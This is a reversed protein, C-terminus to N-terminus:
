SLVECVFWIVPLLLILSPSAFLAVLFVEYFLDWTFTIKESDIIALATVLEFILVFGIMIALAIIITRIRFKNDNSAIIFANIFFIVLDITCIIIFIINNPNQFAFYYLYSFITAILGTIILIYKKRTNMLQQMNDCGIKKNKVKM